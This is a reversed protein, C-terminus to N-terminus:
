LTSFLFFILINKAFIKYVISFKLDRQGIFGLNQNKKYQHATCMTRHLLDILLDILGLASM